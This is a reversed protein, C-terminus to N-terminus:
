IGTFRQIQKTRMFIKLLTTCLGDLGRSNGHHLEVNREPLGVKLCVLNMVARDQENRRTVPAQAWLRTERTTIALSPGAWTMKDPRKTPTAFGRSVM